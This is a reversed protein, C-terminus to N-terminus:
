ISFFPFLSFNSTVLPCRCRCHNLWTSSCTSPKTWCILPLASSPLPGCMHGGFTSRAGWVEGCATPSGVSSVSVALNYYFFCHLALFLIRTKSIGSYRTAASIFVCGPPRLYVHIKYTKLCHVLYPSKYFTPKKVRKM